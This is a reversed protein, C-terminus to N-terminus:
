GHLVLNRIDGGQEQVYQSAYILMGCSGATPGCIHMLERPELLEVNLRVVERPTYFEGGMKGADNAFQYILYEYAGGSM